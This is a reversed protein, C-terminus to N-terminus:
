DQRLVTKQGLLLTGVYKPVLSFDLKPYWGLKPLVAKFDGRIVPCGLLCSGRMPERQKVTTFGM